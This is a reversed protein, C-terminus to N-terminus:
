ESSLNVLASIKNSLQLQAKQLAALKKKWAAVQKAEAVRAASKRIKPPPSQLLPQKSKKGSGSSVVSASLAGLARTSDDEEEEEVASGELEPSKVKSRKRSEERQSSRDLAETLIEIWDERSLSADSKLGSVAPALPLDTKEAPDQARASDTSPEGRTSPM